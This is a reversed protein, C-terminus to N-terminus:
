CFSKFYDLHECEGTIDDLVVKNLSVTGLNEKMAEDIWQSALSEFGNAVRSRRMLYSM